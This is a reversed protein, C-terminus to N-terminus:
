QNLANDTFRKLVHPSIRLRLLVVIHYQRGSLAVLLRYGVVLCWCGIM